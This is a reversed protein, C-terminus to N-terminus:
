IFKPNTNLPSKLNLHINLKHTFIVLSRRFLTMRISCVM